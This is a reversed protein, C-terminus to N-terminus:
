LPRLENGSKCFLRRVGQTSRGTPSIDDWHIIYLDMWEVGAVLRFIKKKFDFQRQNGTDLLTDVVHYFFNSYIFM